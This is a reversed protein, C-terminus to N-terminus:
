RAHRVTTRGPRRPFGERRQHTVWAQRRAPAVLEAAGFLARRGLRRHREQTSGGRYGLADAATGRVWGLLPRSLLTRRLPSPQLLVFSVALLVGGAVLSAIHWGDLLAGIVTAVALVAAATGGGIAFYILVLTAILFLLASV